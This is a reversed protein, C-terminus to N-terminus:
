GVVKMYEENIAKRALEIQSVIDLTQNYITVMMEEEIDNIDSIDSEIQKSIDKEFKGKSIFKSLLKNIAAIISNQKKSEAIDKNVKSIVVEFDNSLVDKIRDLENFSQEMAVTYGNFKDRLAKARKNKAEDKESSSIISVYNALAVERNSEMESIESIIALAQEKRKEYLKQFSMDYDSMLKEKIEACKDQNKGFLEIKSSLDDDLIKMKEKYEEETYFNFKAFVIKIKNSTNNSLDKIIKATEGKISEM